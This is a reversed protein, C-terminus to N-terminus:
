ENEWIFKLVWKGNKDALGSYVGRTMLWYKGTGRSIRGPDELSYTLDGKEDYLEYVAEYKNDKYESRTVLYGDEQLTVYVSHSYDEEYSSEDKVILNGRRDWLTQRANDPNETVVFTDSLLTVKSQPIDSMPIVRTRGGEYVWIMGDSIAYPINGEGFRKVYDECTHGGLEEYDCYRFFGDAAFEWWRTNSGVDIGKIKQREKVVKLEKDYYRITENEEAMFYDPQGGLWDAGYNDASPGNMDFIAKRIGTMVREGDLTYLSGLLENNEQKEFALVYDGFTRTQYSSIREIMEPQSIEKEVSGDKRLVKAIGGTGEVCVLLKQEQEDMGYPMIQCVYEYQGPPITQESRYFANGQLDYLTYRGDNKDHIMYGGSFFEIRENEPAYSGIEGRGLGFLTTRGEGDYITLIKDKPLTLTFLEMYTNTTELQNGYCDFILHRGESDNFAMVRSPDCLLTQEKQEQAQEEQQLEQATFPVAGVCMLVAALIGLQGASRRMGSRKGASQM